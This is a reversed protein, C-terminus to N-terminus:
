EVREEYRYNWRFCPMRQDYATNDSETYTYSEPGEVPPDDLPGKITAPARPTYLGSNTRFWREDAAFDGDEPEDPWNDVPEKYEIAGMGLCYYCRPDYTRCEGTGRCVRCRQHRMPRESSFKLPKVLISESHPRYLTAARMRANRESGWVLFMPVIPRPSEQPRECHVDIEYVLWWGKCPNIIFMDHVVVWGAPGQQTYLRAEIAKGQRDIPNIYIM